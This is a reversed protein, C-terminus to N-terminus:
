SFWETKNKLEFITNKMDLLEMKNKKIDKMKTRMENTNETKLM